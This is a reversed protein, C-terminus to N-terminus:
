GARLKRAFDEITDNPKGLDRWTEEALFSDETKEFYAFMHALFRMKPNFVGVGRIIWLPASQIKLSPDYAKAFREMAERPDLREPGQIAYHRNVAKPNNFANLVQSAYDFSSIWFFKGKGNGIWQLAGNRITWPLSDMFFSPDFITFNIGSDEIFKHGEMRIINPAVNKIPPKASRYAGLAGIKAIYQVKNQKAADIVNRVGEREEYFRLGLDTTETTLNLYVADAGNLGKLLSLPDRLDGQVIEVSAPLLARAKDPSRAIARVQFSKVLEKIVPIALKGTAGIVSITSITM